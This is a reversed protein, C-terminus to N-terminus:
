CRLRAMSAQLPLQPQKRSAWTERICQTLQHQKCVDATFCDAVLQLRGATAAPLQGGGAVQMLCWAPWSGPACCVKNIYLAVGCATPGLM